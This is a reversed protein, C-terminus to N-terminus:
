VSEAVAVPYGRQYDIRDSVHDGRTRMGAADTTVIGAKSPMRVGGGLVAAAILSLSRALLRRCGLFSALNDRTGAIALVLLLLGPEGAAM